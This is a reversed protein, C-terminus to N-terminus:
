GEIGQRAAAQQLLERAREFDFGHVAAALAGYDDNFASRLLEAQEDFVKGARPDDDAFLRLLQRCLPQLQQPDVPTAPVPQQLAAIAALLAALCQELEQLQAALEDHRADKIASELAAAQTALDVAGLNGALGKLSHAEREAGQLEGAALAARLRSAFDAQSAAFKDLLRRYLEPKGLVRRLGSALDVGPLQWDPLGQPVASAVPEEHAQLWRGLTNWLEAPEIPKGLHDNM